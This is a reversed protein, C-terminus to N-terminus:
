HLTRIADNGETGPYGTLPERRGCEKCRRDHIARSAVDVYYVWAHPCSESAPKGNASEQLTM